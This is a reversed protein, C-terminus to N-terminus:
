RNLMANMLSEAQKALDELSGNNNIVFDHDEKKVTLWPEPNIRSLRTYSQVWVTADFYKKLRKFEALRRIGVRLDGGDLCEFTLKECGYDEIYDNWFERHNVRDTYCNRAQEEFSGKGYFFPPMTYAVMDRAIIMSADKKKFNYNKVLIDAFADKGHRALGNIM